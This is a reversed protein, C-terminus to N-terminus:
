QGGSSSDCKRPTYAASLEDSGTMYYTLKTENAAHVRWDRVPRNESTDEPHTRTRETGWPHESSASSSGSFVVVTRPDVVADALEVVSVKDSKEEVDEDGACVM